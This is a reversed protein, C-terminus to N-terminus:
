GGIWNKGACATVNFDRWLEDSNFVIHMTGKKFLKVKFFETDYWTGSEIHDLVFCMSSYLGNKEGAWKASVDEYRIGTLLCLAKEIDNALDKGSYTLQMGRSWCSEAMNPLIIKKNAHWKENTKWGERHCRNDSYYQTFKDFIQEVAKERIMGIQAVLNGLLNDINAVTFELNKQTVIFKDFEDRMKGTMYSAIKTEAFVKHWCAKRLELAFHTYEPCKMEVTSGLSVPLLFMMDRHARNIAAHARLSRKYSDVLTKIRDFPILGQDSAEHSGSAMDGTAEEMGDFLHDFENPNTSKPKDVVIMAVTVGTRNEANIFANQYIRITGNNDSLINALLQEGGLLEPREVSIANLLCVLRGGGALVEWAKLAHKVGNRFPPNMLVGDFYHDGLDAHLFDSGLVPIDKAALLQRLEPSIECAYFNAHCRGAYGNKYQEILNGKGASPELISHRHGGGAKMAMAMDFAIPEPTPFYQEAQEYNM